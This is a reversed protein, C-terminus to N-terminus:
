EPGAHAAHAAPDVVAWLSHPSHFTEATVLHEPITRGFESELDVLLSLMGVSDLGLAVLPHDPELAAEGALAPLRARLLQEFRPSWTSPVAVGREETFERPPV